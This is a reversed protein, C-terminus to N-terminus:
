PGCIILFFFKLKPFKCENFFSIGKPRSKSGIPRRLARPMYADLMAAEADPQLQVLVPITISSRAPLDGVQRVLPTIKWTDTEEVEIQLDKAAILGHNTVTVQIQAVE